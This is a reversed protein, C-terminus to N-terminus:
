ELANIISNSYDQVLGDIHRHLFTWQKIITVFVVFKISTIHDVNNFSRITWTFAVICLFVEAHLVHTIM